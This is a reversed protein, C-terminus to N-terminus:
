KCFARNMRWRWLIEGAQGGSALDVAKSVQKDIARSVVRTRERQRCGGAVPDGLSECSSQCASSADEAVVISHMCMQRQRSMRMKRSSKEAARTHILANLIIPFACTTVVDQPRYMANKRRQRKSRSCRFSGRGISWSSSIMAYTDPSM